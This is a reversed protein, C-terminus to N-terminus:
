QINAVPRGIELKGVLVTVADLEAVKESLLVNNQRKVDEGVCGGSGVFKLRVLSTEDAEFLNM